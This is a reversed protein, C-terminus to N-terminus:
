RSITENELVKIFNHDIGLKNLRVKVVPDTLLKVTKETTLLNLFLLTSKLKKWYATPTETFLFQNLVNIPFINNLIVFHTIFLPFEMTGTKEHAIFARRISRFRKLEMKFEYLSIYTDIKTHKLAYILFKDKSRQSSM